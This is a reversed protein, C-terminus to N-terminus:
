AGNTHLLDITTPYLETLDFEVPHCIRYAAAPHRLRWFIRAEDTAYIAIVWAVVICQDLDRSDFM